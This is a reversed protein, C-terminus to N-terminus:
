AEEEAKITLILKLRVCHFRFEAINRSYLKSPNVNIHTEKQTHLRKAYSM